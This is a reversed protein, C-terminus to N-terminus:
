VKELVETQYVDCLGDNTADPDFSVNLDKLYAQKDTKNMKSFESPTKYKKRVDEQEALAALEKKTPKLLKQCVYDDVLPLLHQFRVSTINHLLEDITAGALDGREERVASQLHYPGDKGFNRLYGHELLLHISLRTQKDKYGCLRKAELANKDCLDDFLMVLLQEPANAVEIPRIGEYHMLWAILVKDEKSTTLYLNSAELRAITEKHRKATETEEDYVWFARQKNVHCDAESKALLQGYQIINWDACHTPISLDFVQDHQLTIRSDEVNVSMKTQNDIYTRGVDYIPLGCVALLTEIEDKKLGNKWDGAIRGDVLLTVCESEIIDTRDEMPKANKHDKSWSNRKEDYYERKETSCRAVLRKKGTKALGAKKLLKQIDEPYDSLRMQGMLQTAEM